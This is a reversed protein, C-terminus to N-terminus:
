EVGTYFYLGHSEGVVRTYGVHDPYKKRLRSLASGISKHEKMGLWRAMTTANVGTSVNPSYFAHILQILVRQEITVKESLNSIYANVSHYTSEEIPPISSYDITM